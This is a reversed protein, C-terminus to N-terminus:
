SHVSVEPVTLWILEGVPVPIKDYHHFRECVWGYNIMMCEILAGVDLAKFVNQLGTNM